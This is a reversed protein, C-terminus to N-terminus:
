SPEVHRSRPVKLAPILGKGVLDQYGHVANRGTTKAYYLATDAQSILEEMSLRKDFLTYGISVTVQNVGPFDYAAIRERFRDLTQQAQEAEIDMLVMAFEEGGYRFLLDNERFSDTMQQALLLLVEDGFLHGQSDNILKFHDVDLM